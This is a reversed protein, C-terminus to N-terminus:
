FRLFPRDLELWPCNLASGLCPWASLGGVEGQGAREASVSGIEWPCIAPHSMM